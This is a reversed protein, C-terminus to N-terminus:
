EQKSPCKHTGYTCFVCCDGTKPYLEAKCKQCTYKIVCVDTPMTEMKKHGCKPCTIESTMATQNNMATTDKVCCSDSKAAAIGTTAKKDSASNCCTLLFVAAFIAVGHSFNKILKMQMNANSRYSLFRVALTIMKFFCLTLIWHVPALYPFRNERNQYQKLNLYKIKEKKQAQELGMALLPIRHTSFNRRSPNIAEGRGRLLHIYCRGWLSFM